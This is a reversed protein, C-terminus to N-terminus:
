SAAQGTPLAPWERGVAEAFVRGSFDSPVLKSPLPSLRNDLLTLAIYQHELAWLESGRRRDVNQRKFVLYYHTRGRGDDEEKVEDAYNGTSTRALHLGKIESLQCFPINVNYLIDKPIVGHLMQHALAAATRAGVGFLSGGTYPTRYGASVAIAPLGRVRAHWAAGVTGSLLVETGTNYGHNVGAVVLDAPTEKMVHALALIVADGPTGEVTYTEIGEMSYPLRHLRIAKALSISAGVGSQERDPAVITVNGIELMAEALAWLGPANIGDDNTVLINM